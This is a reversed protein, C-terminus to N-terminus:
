VPRAKKFTAEVDTSSYELAQGSDAYCKAIVEQWMSVERLLAKTCATWVVGILAASDASIPATGSTLASLANGSSEGEEISFHKEVRKALADVAKRLDKLSGAEKIVRKLAAKSYTPSAAVDSPASAQLQRNVSDFFDQISVMNNVDGM